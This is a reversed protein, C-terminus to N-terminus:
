AVGRPLPPLPLVHEGAPAPLSRQEARRFESLASCAPSKCNFAASRSVEYGCKSCKLTPHM